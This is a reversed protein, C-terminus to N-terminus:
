PGDYENYGTAWVIRNEADVKFTILGQGGWNATWRYTGMRISPDNPCAELKFGEAVLEHELRFAESGPPFQQRLRNVTGVDHVAVDPSQKDFASCLFWTNGVREGPDRILYPFAFQNSCGALVSCIVFIGRVDMWEHTAHGDLTQLPDNDSMPNEANVAAV